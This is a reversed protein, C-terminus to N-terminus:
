ARTEVASVRLGGHASWREECVVFFLYNGSEGLLQTVLVDVLDRTEFLDHDGGAHALGGIALQGDIVGHGFDALDGALLSGDAVRLLGNGVELEALTFGKSRKPLEAVISLGLRSALGGSLSEPLVVGVGVDRLQSAATRVLVFAEAAALDM